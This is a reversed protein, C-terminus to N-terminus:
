IKTVIKIPKAATFVPLLKSKMITEKRSLM